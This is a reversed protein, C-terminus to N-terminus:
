RGLIREIAKLLLQVDVPKTIYDSAGQRLGWDRDTQQDKTTVLIIPIHATVEDRRLQRTAQFGNLNPMVVDMLILDPRLARAMEVGLQGDEAFEVLYGARTLLNKMLHRETPSDDVVLITSRSATAVEGDGDQSKRFFGRM